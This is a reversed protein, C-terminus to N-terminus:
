VAIILLLTHFIDCFFGLHLEVFRGSSSRRVSNQPVLCLFALSPLHSFRTTRTAVCEMPRFHRQQANQYCQVVLVTCFYQPLVQVHCYYISFVGEVLILQDDIVAFGFSKDAIPSLVSVKASAFTEANKLLAFALHAQV